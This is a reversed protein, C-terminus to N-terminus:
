RPTPTGCTTSAFAPRCGLRSSRRVSSPKSGSTTGCPCSGTGFVLEEPGRGLLELERCLSPSMPVRRMSADSKPTQFILKGRVDAVSRSVIVRKRLLDLDRVRLAVLEGARLGTGAAMRVYLADHWDLKAALDNVQAPTLFLQELKHLRPLVLRTAPNREIEKYLVAQELIGRLVLAVNRVTPPQRGVSIMENILDQCDVPRLKGVPVDRWRILWVDLITQYNLRSRAKLGVTTEFWRDAVVGFPVLGSAPGVYAGAMLRCTVEAHFRRADSERDFSKSRQHGDLDRFRVQFVPGKEREIRRLGPARRGM